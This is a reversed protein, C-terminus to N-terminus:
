PEAGSPEAAAVKTSKRPRGPGNSPVDIALRRMWRVLTTPSCGLAQAARTRNGGATALAEAVRLLSAEPPQEHARRDPWVRRRRTCWTSWAWGLSHAAGRETGACVVAEEMRTRVRALAVREPLGLAQAAARISAGRRSLLAVLPDPVAEHTLHERRIPGPQALAAAVDVVCILQRANGPWPREELWLAAPDTLELGRHKDRLRQVAIPVVDEPRESLPPIRIVWGALRHYLDERFRGRRVWGLLDRNTASVVRVDVTRTSRGQLRRVRGEEVVKLFRAQDRLPVEGVEDLFLTGGDAREVAGARRERLDTWAGAEAGFLEAALLAGAVAGGDLEVYEGRRGSARHLGAAVLSKGSGTPGLVLVPVAIPGVRAIDAAVSAMASSRYSMGFMSEFM